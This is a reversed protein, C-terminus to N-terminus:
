AAGTSKTAPPPEPKPRFDFSGPVSRSEIAQVQLSGTPLHLWLGSSNGGLYAELAEAGDGQAPEPTSGFRGILAPLDQDCVLGIGASFAILLNGDEDLWAGSPDHAPKGTHCLFSGDANRRLVWPTYELAAFVRQPGNQFFWEGDQSAAYNRSIFAVMGAHRIPAGQLRWQGRRDLSLWGYLAPVNPWRAMAAVVTADMIDPSMGLVAVLAAHRPTPRSPWRPATPQLWTPAGSTTTAPWTYRM